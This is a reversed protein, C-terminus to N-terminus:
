SWIGRRRRAPGSCRYARKRSNYSKWARRIVWFRSSKDSGAMGNLRLAGDALCGFLVRIGRIIGIARIQLLYLLTRIRMMRMMKMMRIM